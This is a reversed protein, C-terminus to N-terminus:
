EDTAPFLSDAVRDAVSRLAKAPASKPELAVLPRASNVSRPVSRDSPVSVDPPRSLVEKVDYTTLGVKSDSRNLVVLVRDRKVSMLELTQLGVKLNKLGPLDLTGVAVCLSSQDIAAIAPATFAPPSDVVVVDYMSRAVHLLHDVREGDLAEAQDPRVPSLLVDLGDQTTMVFASLRDADLKGPVQALDYVTRDPQVGLVIGVDGFQLDLDVLLTKKGRSVLETALNTSVTTKGVGGKPGLVVVLPSEDTSTLVGSDRNAVRAIAKQVALAVTASEAPLVVIEDAGAKLAEAIEGNLPGPMAVVLAMTPRERRSTEVIEVVDDVNPTFLLLAESNDREATMLARSLDSMGSAVLLGEGATPIAGDLLNSPFARHAAISLRTSSM